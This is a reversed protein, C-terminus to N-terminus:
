LLYCMARSHETLDPDGGRWGGRSIIESFTM